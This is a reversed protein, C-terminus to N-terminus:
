YNRKESVFFTIANCGGFHHFGWISPNNNKTNPRTNLLRSVEQVSFFFFLNPEKSVNHSPFTGLGLTPMLQRSPNSRNRKHKLKRNLNSDRGTITYMGAM